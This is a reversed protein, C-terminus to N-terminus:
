KIGKNRLSRNIKTVAKDAAEDQLREIERLMDKSAFGCNINGQNITIHTPNNSVMQPQVSQVAGLQRRIASAPDVGFEMLRKTIDAPIVSDGKQLYEYRGSGPKRLIFEEGMEDVTYIDDKPVSLTGSAYGKTADILKYSGSDTNSVKVVKGSGTAPIIYMGEEAPIDFTYQVDLNVKKSNIGGWANKLREATSTASSLSSNLQNAKDRAASIQDSFQQAKDRAREIPSELADAQIQLDTTRTVLTDLTNIVNIHGQNYRDLASYGNNYINQINADIGDGYQRNWLILNSYLTSNRSEILAIAENRINVEQSSYNRIQELQKELESKKKDTESKIQNEKREYYDEWYEREEDIANKQNELSYDHVYDDYEKQADILEQQLKKTRAKGADSTDLQSQLLKAQLDELTGQKEAITKEREYENEKEELLKKQADLKDLIKDREKGLNEVEKDHRDEEADILKELGEIQDDYKQKVYKEVTDLLSEISSQDDKLLSIQKQLAKQQDELSKTYEDSAKKQKELAKIQADAADKARNTADTSKNLAETYKNNFSDSLSNIAVQNLKIKNLQAEYAVNEANIKAQLKEVPSDGINSLAAQLDDGVRPLHSVLDAVWNWASQWGKVLCMLDNLRSITETHSANLLAQEAQMSANAGEQYKTFVEQVVQGNNFTSDGTASLYDMLTDYASFTTNGLEDVLPPLSQINNMFDLLENGALANGQGLDSIIGSLTEMATIDGNIASEHAAISENTLKQIQEINSLINGYQKVAEIANDESDTAHEMQGSLYSISDGAGRSMQKIQEIVAATNTLNVSTKDSSAMLDKFYDSLYDISVGYSALSQKASEPAIKNFVTRVDKGAKAAEELKTALDSNEGSQFFEDLRERISKSENEFQIYSDLVSDLQKKYPNDDSMNSAAQQAKKIVDSLRTEAYELKKEVKEIEYTANKYESTDPRFRNQEEQLKKIQETYGKVYGLQVNVDDALSHGNLHSLIDAGSEFEKSADDNTEEKAVDALMRKIALQRQLEENTTALKSIEDKSVVSVPGAANLEKIRETNSDLQEEISEVESQLNKYEQASEQTKEALKEDMHILYDIGGISGQVILGIGMGVLMNGALSLAKMGAAAAKSSLSTTQLATNTANIHNKYGELSASGADVTELYERMGKDTLQANFKQMAEAGSDWAKAFKSIQKQADEDSLLELPSGKTKAFVGKAGQWISSIEAKLKQTKSITSDFSSDVSKIQTSVDSFSKGLFSMNDLFKDNGLTEFVM